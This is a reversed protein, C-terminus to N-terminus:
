EHTEAEGHKAAADKPKDTRQRRELENLLTRIRVTDMQKLQHLADLENILEDLFEDVERMNYGCFSRSFRKNIVDDRNVFCGRFYGRVRYFVIRM